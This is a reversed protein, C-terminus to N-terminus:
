YGVLAGKVLTGLKTSWDTPYRSPPKDEGKRAPREKMTTYEFPSTTWKEWVKDLLDKADQSIEGVGFQTIFFADFKYGVDPSIEANIKADFCDFLVRAPGHSGKHDAFLLRSIAREAGTSGIAHLGTTTRDSVIGPPLLDFIYPKKEADFGCVLIECDFKKHYDDMRNRLDILHENLTPQAMAKLYERRTMMHPYLIEASQLETFCRRFAGELFRSIAQRSGGFNDFGRIRDLVRVVYRESGAIMALTTKGALPIIKTADSDWSISSLGEYSLAKDAVCVIVEEHMALAAICVTM